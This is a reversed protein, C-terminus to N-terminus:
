VSAPGACRRGSERGRSRPQQEPEMPPLSPPLPVPPRRCLNLETIALGARSPTIRHRLANGYGHGGDAERQGGGGSGRELARGQDLLSLIRGGGHLRVVRLDLLGVGLQVLGLLKVAFALMGLRHLSSVVGQGHESDLLLGREAAAAGARSVPPAAVTRKRAEAAYTQYLDLTIM